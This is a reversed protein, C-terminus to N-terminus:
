DDGAEDHSFTNAQPLVQAGKSDVKPSLMLFLHKVLPTRLIRVQFLAHVVEFCVKLDLGVPVHAIIGEIFVRSQISM